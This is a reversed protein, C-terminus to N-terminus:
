PMVLKMGDLRAEVPVCTNARFVVEFVGKVSPNESSTEDEFYLVRTWTRMQEPGDPSGQFSEWGESDVVVGQFQIREFVDDARLRRDEHISYAEWTKTM